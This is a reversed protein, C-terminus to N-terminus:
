PTRFFVEVDYKSSSFPDNSVDIVTLRGDLVDVDDRYTRDGGSEDLVVRYVGPERDYARDDYGDVRKQSEGDIYVRIDNFTNNDVVISGQGDPPKHDTSDDYDCGAILLSAGAFATALAIRTHRHM